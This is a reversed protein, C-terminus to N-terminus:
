RDIPPLVDRLLPRQRAATAIAFLGPTNAAFWVARPRWNVMVAVYIDLVSFPEGIVWPGSVQTELWAFLQM